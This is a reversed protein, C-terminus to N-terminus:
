REDRLSAIAALAQDAAHAPDKTDGNAISALADLATTLMDQSPLTYGLSEVFERVETEMQTFDLDHRELVETRKNTDVEVRVAVSRFTEAM